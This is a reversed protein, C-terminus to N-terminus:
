PKNDSKCKVFCLCTCLPSNSLTSGLYGVATSGRGGWCASVSSRPATSQLWGSQTSVQLTAGPTCVCRIDFSHVM